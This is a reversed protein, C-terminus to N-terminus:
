RPYELSGDPAMHREWGEPEEPYLAFALAAEFPNDYCWFEVVETPTCVGVRARDLVLPMLALWRGDELPKIAHYGEAWSERPPVQLETDASM